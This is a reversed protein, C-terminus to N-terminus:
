EIAFFSHVVSDHLQMWSDWLCLTSNLFDFLLTCVINKCECVTWSCTQSFAHHVKHSPFIIVDQIKDSHHNRPHICIYFKMLIHVYSKHVKNDTYTVGWHFFSFPIRQSRKRATNCIRPWLIHSPVRLSLYPMRYAWHCHHQQFSQTCPPLCRNWHPCIM